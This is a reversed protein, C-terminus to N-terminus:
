ERDVAPVVDGPVRLLNSSERLFTSDVTEVIKSNHPTRQSKEFAVERRSEVALLTDCGDRLNRGDRGLKSRSDSDSRKMRTAIM